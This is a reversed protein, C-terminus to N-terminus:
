GGGHHNKFGLRTLKEGRLLCRPPYRLKAIFQADKSRETNLARHAQAKVMPERLLRRFIKNLGDNNIAKTHTKKHHSVIKAKTMLAATVKGHKSVGGRAMAKLELTHGRKGVTIATYATCAHSFRKLRTIQSRSL